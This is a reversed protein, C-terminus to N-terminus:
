RSPSRRSPSRRHEPTRSTGVDSQYVRSPSDQRRQPARAARTAIGEHDALHAVLGGQLAITLAQGGVIMQQHLDAIEVDSRTELAATIAQPDLNAHRVIHEAVEAQKVHRQAFRQLCALRAQRRTLEEGTPMPSSAPMFPPADRPPPVGQATSSVHPAVGSGSAIPEGVLTDRRMSALGAAAREASFLRQAYDKAQMLERLTHAAWETDHLTQDHLTQIIPASFKQGPTFDRIEVAAALTEQFADEIHRLVNAHDQQLTAHWLPHDVVYEILLGRDLGHLHERMKQMAEETIAACAPYLMDTMVNPLGFENALRQKYGIAIEVPDTFSMHTCLELTKAEIHRTVWEGEICALRKDVPWKDRVAVGCDFVRRVESWGEAVRDGCTGLATAAAEFLLPRSSKDELVLDLVESVQAEMFPRTNINQYDKMEPLRDLLRSFEKMRNLDSSALDSEYQRRLAAFEALVAARDPRNAPVWAAAAVELDRSLARDEAVEQAQGAQTMNYNITPGTGLAQLAARVAESLHGGSLHLSLRNWDAINEPLSTIPNARADVIALNSLNGMTPPLTTLQNGSLELNTLATLAGIQPPLMTLQNHDLFLTTLVSAPLRCLTPSLATLGLGYLNLQRHTPSPQGAERADFIARWIALERDTAEWRSEGPGGEQVYTRLQNEISSLEIDDSPENM